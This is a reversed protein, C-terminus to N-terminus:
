ATEYITNSEIQPTSRGTIDYYYSLRIFVKLSYNMKLRKKERQVTRRDHTGRRHHLYWQM